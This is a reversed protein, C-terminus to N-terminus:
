SPIGQIGFGADPFSGATQVPGFSSLGAPRTRTLIGRNGDSFVVVQDGAATLGSVVNTFPLIPPDVHPAVLAPEHWAAQAPGVWWLAALLVGVVVWGLRRRAAGGSGISM